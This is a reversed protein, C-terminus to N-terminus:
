PMRKLLIYSRRRGDVKYSFLEVAQLGRNNIYEDFVERTGMRWGLMEAEDRAQIERLNGPIEVLVAEVRPLSGKHFAGNLWGVRPDKMSMAGLTIPSMTDRPPLGGVIAQLEIFEDIEHKDIERYEFEM